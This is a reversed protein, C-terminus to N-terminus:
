EPLQLILDVENETLDLRKAIDSITWGQRKLQRVSDSTQPNLTAGKKSPSSAREQQTIKQLVKFKNDVDRSLGQLDLETKTLGKQVSNLADIRKETDAIISDLSELRGIADSIKTGNQLIRDVNNQVEKIEQPLSVAQRNCNTLRQELDKLKEFQNDVDTKIREVVEDKKELREYQESINKLRDNYNRVTVEMSQLDDKTTNLSMIREDITNSLAMMKGFQQELNIVRSKQAEISTIQRNIEDNIKMISTYQANMKDASDSYGKLKSFASNLEAVNTELQRRMKDATEYNQINAKVDQLEKEIEGLRTQILNASDQMKLTFSSQNAANRDEAEKIDKKLAETREAAEINQQKLQEKAEELMQKYMGSIQNMIAAAKEEYAKISTDTKNQLDAIKDNLDNHQNQVSVAYDTMNQLLKQKEEKIKDDTSDKFKELDTSFIKESDEFQTKIQQKWTNFEALAADISSSGTEQRTKVSDEFLKLDNLLEDQIKALSTQVMAKNHEIEKKLAEESSKTLSNISNNTDSKFRNVFDQIDKVSDQMEAKTQEIAAAVKTYQDSARSQLGEIGNKFDELYKAEITRRSDEYKNSLTSLKADLEHKWEALDSDIQNSKTSLTQNFESEFEQIKASMSGTATEKLSDLSRNIETIKTEIEASDEKITNSFEEHKQKQSTTFSDFERLVRNQVESM